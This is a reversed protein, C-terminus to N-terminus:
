SLFSQPPHWIYYTFSTNLYTSIIFENEIVKLKEFNFTNYFFSLFMHHCCSCDCSNDGCCEKQSEEKEITKKSCCSTKSVWNDEKVLELNIDITSSNCTSVTSNSVQLLISLILIRLLYITMRNCFYYFVLM